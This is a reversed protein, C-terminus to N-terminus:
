KIAFFYLMKKVLIFKLQHIKINHCKLLIMYFLPLFTLQALIQRLKLNPGFESEAGKWEVNSQTNPVTSYQTERWYLLCINLKHVESQAAQQHDPRGEREKFMRTKEETGGAGEGDRLRGRWLGNSGPFVCM